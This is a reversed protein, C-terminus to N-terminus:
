SNRVNTWCFHAKPEGVELTAESIIHGEEADAANGSFPKYFM